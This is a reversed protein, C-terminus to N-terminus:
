MVVGMPMLAVDYRFGRGSAVAPDAAEMRRVAAEDTARVVGLGWAGSPEAVPGFALAVGEALKGRWYAGHEMMVAREEETMDMLFTPRPGVLRVLFTQAPAAFNGQLWGLVQQWGAAHSECSMARDTFGTHRVTVRTGTPIADLRWTITTAPGPDWDPRWTQVLRHPAEVAVVEGEVAFASGDAGVGDTRWRGGPRLDMTFATTRYQEASGWWRTLESTTIAEFVREPPVAIEIRALIVGEAVDAVSHAAKM